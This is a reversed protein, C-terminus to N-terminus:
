RVGTRWRARPAERDVVIPRQASSSGLGEGSVVHGLTSAYGEAPQPADGRGELTETIREFLCRGHVAQHRLARCDQPALPRRGLGNGFYSGLVDAPVWDWSRRWNPEPLDLMPSISFAAGMLVYVYQSATLLDYIREAEHRGQLILNVAEMFWVEARYIWPLSSTRSALADSARDAQDVEGESVALVNSLVLSTAAGYDHEAAAEADRAVLTDREIHARRRLQAPVLARRERTSLTEIAAAAARADKRASRPHGRAIKLNAWALTIHAAPVVTSRTLMLDPFNQGGRIGACSSLFHRARTPDEGLDREVSADLMTHAALLAAYWYFGHDHFWGSLRSREEATRAGALLKDLYAGAAGSGSQMVRHCHRHVPVVWHSDVPLPIRHKIWAQPLVHHYDPVERGGREGRLGPEFYELCFACWEGHQDRTTRSPHLSM